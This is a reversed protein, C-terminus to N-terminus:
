ARNSTGRLQDRAPLTACSVRANFSFASHHNASFAVERPRHIVCERAVGLAANVSGTANTDEGRHRAAAATNEISTAIELALKSIRSSADKCNNM